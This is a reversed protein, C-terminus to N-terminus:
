RIAGGPPHGTGGPSHRGGPAWRRGPIGHHGLAATTSHALSLIHGGNRTLSNAPIEFGDTDEVGEEVTYSFLLQRTGAGSYAATKPDGGIDLTIQPSDIALVRESFTVGIEIVDGIAYGGDDGPDSTVAVSEVTPVSEDQAYVIGAPVLLAFM